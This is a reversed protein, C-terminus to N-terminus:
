LHKNGGCKWCPGKKNPKPANTKQTQKLSAIKSTLQRLAQLLVEMETPKSQAVQVAKPNGEEKDIQRITVRPNSNPKIQLYENGAKLAESLSQPRIALPHRQLYAQNLSNCFLDLIMGKRRAQPLDAYAAEVLRKVETAHDTLSLRADRKLSTLRTRAERITLGYKARLAELVKELTSYSGCESADNKLHTRIHLLTAMESGENAMAVEKFQQIFGEVNGDGMFDPAKFVERRAPSPQASSLRELASALRDMTPLDEQDPQPLRGLSRSRHSM